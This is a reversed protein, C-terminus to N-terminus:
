KVPSINFFFAFQSVLLGMQFNKEEILIPIVSSEIIAMADQIPVIMGWSKFLSSYKVLYLWSNYLIRFASLKVVSYWEHHNVVSRTRKINFRNTDVISRNERLSFDMPNRIVWELMIM